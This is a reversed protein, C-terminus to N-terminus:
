ASSFLHIIFKACKTRVCLVNVCSSYISCVAWLFLFFLFFFFPFFVSLSFHSRHFNGYSFWIRDYNTFHLNWLFARFHTPTNKFAHLSLCFPRFFVFVHLLGLFSFASLSRMFHLWLFLRRRRRRRRCCRRLHLSFSLLSFIGFTYSNVYTRPANVCQTFVAFVSQSQTSYPSRGYHFFTSLSFFFRTFARRRVFIHVSAFLCLTRLYYM